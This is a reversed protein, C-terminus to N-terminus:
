LSFLLVFESNTTCILDINSKLQYNIIIVPTAIM